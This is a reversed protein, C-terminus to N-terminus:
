FVLETLPLTVASLSSKPKLWTDCDNTFCKIRLGQAGRVNAGCNSCIYKEQSSKASKKFSDVATKWPFSEAPILAMIEAFKGNPDIYHRVRFGTRKGGPSGTESPILGIEQMKNAWESNCYDRRLPTGFEHQWLSVMQRALVEFILHDQRSLLEPNLAIEHSIPNDAKNWRQPIFHGLSKGRAALTILCPPLIENFLGM